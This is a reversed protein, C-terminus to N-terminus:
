KKNGFIKVLEFIIKFFYYILYVVALIKNITLEIISLKYLKQIYALEKEDFFGLEKAVVIADKNAMKLLNSQGIVFVLSM